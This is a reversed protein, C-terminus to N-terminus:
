KKFYALDNRIYWLKYAINRFIPCVGESAFRSKKPEDLFLAILYKPKEMPFFGVFSIISKTNSYNRLKEDFKQATGTKGCVKVEESFLALRGTGKVCVNHLIEKILKVNEEDIVKELTEPKFVKKGIKKVLIPKVFYGNQAIALYALAIQLLNTKIGQGFVNNCFDIDPFHKKKFYPIFGSNENPIGIDVKQGFRLKKVMKYFDEKKIKLALQSVGINSSYIFIDSFDVIGLKKREADYIRKKGVELYGRRLDYSKKLFDEKEYFSLITALIVLKFISGPEFSECMSAPTLYFFDPNINPYDVLALVELSECDIILCGGKKAKEKEVGKKLEEYALRQVDLDITLYLDEGDIPAVKPYDPYSYLNAFADKQLYWYGEKGKLFQNFKKEIGFVGEKKNNLFGLLNIVEEYPYVRKFNEKLYLVNHLGKKYIEKQLLKGIEYDLTKTFYLFHKKTLRQAIQSFSYQPFFKLLLSCAISLKRESLYQPYVELEFISSTYALIRKKRDFIEGRKPFLISKKLHYIKAESQYKQFDFIQHKVLLGVIIFFVVSFYIKALKFKWLDNKVM